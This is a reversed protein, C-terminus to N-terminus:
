YAPRTNKIKEKREKEQREAIIGADFINDEIEINCNVFQELDEIKEIKTIEGYAVAYLEKM